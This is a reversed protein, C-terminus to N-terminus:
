RMHTQRRGFSYCKYFGIFAELTNELYEIIEERYTLRGKNAWEGAPKTLNSQLCNRRAPM